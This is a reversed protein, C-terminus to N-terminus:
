SKVRVVCSVFLSYCADVFVAFSWFVIFLILGKVGIEAHLEM